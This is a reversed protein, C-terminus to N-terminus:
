RLTIAPGCRTQCKWLSGACAHISAGQSIETRIPAEMREIQRAAIPQLLHHALPADRRRDDDIRDVDQVRGARAVHRDPRRARRRAIQQDEGFARRDQVLKEAALMQRAAQRRDVLDTRREAEAMPGGPAVRRFSSPLESGLDVAQHALVRTGRTFDREVPEGKVRDVRQTRQAIADGVDIRHDGSRARDLHRDLNGVNTFRHAPDFPGRFVQLCGDLRSAGLDFDPAFELPTNM